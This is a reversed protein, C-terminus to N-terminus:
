PLQFRVRLYGRTNDALPNPSRYITTASNDRHFTRSHLVAGPTNEWNVLDESLEPILSIESTTVRHRITLTLYDRPGAGLDLATVKVRIAQDM